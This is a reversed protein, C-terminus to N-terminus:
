LPSFTVWPPLSPAQVHAGVTKDDTWGVASIEFSTNLATGNSPSVVGYGNRPAQNVTVRVTTTAAITGLTATLQFPYTTGPTLAPTALITLFPTGLSTSQVVEALAAPSLDPCTWRLEVGNAGRSDVVVGLRASQSPNVVVTTATPTLSPPDGFVVGVVVSATASRPHRPILGDPVGKSVVVTLRYLGVALTQPVFSVVATSSLTLPAGTRANTCGPTETTLLVGSANSQTLM